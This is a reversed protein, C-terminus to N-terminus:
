EEGKCVAKYQCMWCARTNRRFHERPKPENRTTDGDELLARAARIGAQVHQAGAAMLAPTAPYPQVAKHRVFAALTMIEAGALEDRLM